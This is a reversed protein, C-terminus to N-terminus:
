RLMQELIHVGHGSALASDVKMKYARNSVVGVSVSSKDVIEAYCLENNM